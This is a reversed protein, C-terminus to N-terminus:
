QNGATKPYGENITYPHKTSIDLSKALKNYYITLKLNSAIEKHNDDLGQLFIGQRAIIFSLQTKVLPDQCTDFVSQIKEYDDLKIAFKLAWAFQKNELAVDFSIELTKIM